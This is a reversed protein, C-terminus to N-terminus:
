KVTVPLNCIDDWMKNLESSFLEKRTPLLYQLFNHTPGSGTGMGPSVNIPYPYSNPAPNYLVPTVTPNRESCWLGKWLLVILSLCIYICMLALDPYHKLLPVTYNKLSLHSLITHPHPVNWLSPPIIVLADLLCLNLSCYEFLYLGPSPFICSM